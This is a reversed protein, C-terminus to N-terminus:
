RSFTMSEIVPEAALVAAEHDSASGTSLVEIIAFEGTDSPANIITLTVYEDDIFQSRTPPTDNDKVLLVASWKHQSLNAGHRRSV